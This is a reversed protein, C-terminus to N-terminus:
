DIDLKTYQSLLGATRILTDRTRASFELQGISRQYIEGNYVTSFLAEYVEKLKSEVTVLSNITDTEDYTEGRTLLQDFIRSPLVRAIEILPMHNRGEIFDTYRQMSQVKLGMMIPTIFLLCFQLGKEDSFGFHYRNNHTPDYAAVKTLRLYKAIERLEFHYAKIVAGCVTDFVYYGDSFGLSQYFRQLDPSPLAIRLDFFRDLYRSGDFEAGYHKKITHQFEDINISFVFTIKEHEFYHKIRELLRVAYSPKCRDLEDIFIVLRNGKEPLLADLFDGVLKEIGKREKLSDLPNEGKLKDIVQGWSRGSFVEMISAGVKICDTNNIVFDTDVCNLITYVLSLIPDDDNDNQWADYYICVQPQLETVNQGYFRNRISVIEEKDKYNDSGIFSNHADLVMKVQKVFFTKGSGWKGDLAISCGDNIADLINIFRFIDANRGITNKRYTKLLNAYTPNLDYKKM